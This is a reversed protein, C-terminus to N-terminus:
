GSGRRYVCLSGPRREIRHPRDTFFHGYTPDYARAKYYYLHAGYLTLQGTYRFRNGDSASWPDGGGYLKPEGYPGYTYLQSLNGSSDSYGVISGHYDYYYWREASTGSGHLWVLPDDTGFGFVYRESPTNGGGHAYEGILKVGDYLFDTYTSGGDNSYQALRGVPDYVLKVNATSSVATLLRNYVDYTFTRGGSGESALNGNSDYGGSLSAIAADRNLGDYTQNVTTSATEKYDYATSNATTQYVQGAPNYTFGWTVDYATGALDNTQSTLRGLNDFSYGQAGNSRGSIALRGLNDYTQWYIGSTANYGIASLRNAADVTYGVYNGDPYYLYTRVGAQNYAYSVSRGNMDTTAALWGLGNYEYHVGQTSGLSGFLSTCDPGAAHVDSSFADLCPHNELDYDTYVTAISGDSISRVTERNLNDYSYNVTKANRRRWSTKNSNADYGFQEYDATNINGSGATTSPYQVQSVRDFGDYVYMTKNGNADMETAKTGNANYSYRAYARQVGSVGYAQDVETVENALDYSTKTIRDPGYSGTTGLSCADTGSISGYVSSNMRIAACNARGRNDYNFQSLSQATGNGDIYAAVLAKQEMATYATTVYSARTFSSGDTNQSTGSETQTELIGSYIHHTVVRPLNTGPGDPDVSIEYVPRRIADYTTYSVDSVDTRPGDVSTRNGVSDYTFSSTQSVLNDGSAVTVSSPLLNGQVNYVSSTKLQKADGDCTVAKACTSVLSPLWITGANTWAGSSNKVQATYQAWTTITKPTYGASDAPSQVQTVGGHTPDYTYYTYNGRADETWNPKNCKVPNSCTADYNAYANTASLGSGSKPADAVQTVNGRADYTYTASNGEPKTVAILRTYNNSGVGSIM